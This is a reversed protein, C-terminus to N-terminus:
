VKKSLPQKHEQFIEYIKRWGAASNNPRLFNLITTQWRSNDHVFDIQQGSTQKLIEQRDSKFKRFYRQDFM